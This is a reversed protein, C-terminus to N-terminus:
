PMNDPDILRKAACGNSTSVSSSGAVCSDPLPYLTDGQAGRPVLSYYGSTDNRTIWFHYFDQGKMNPGKVGNIDIGVWGCANVGYNNCSSYSYFYLFYGNNTVAAPISACGADPWYATSGKYYRYRYEPGFIVLSSNIKTFAMVNAFENRVANHGISNQIIGINFSGGNNIQIMRVAQSLESYAKKLGENYEAEKSDNIINPVVLSAVVGVILLTILVEALTFGKILKRM